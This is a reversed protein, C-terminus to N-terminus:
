GPASGAQAAYYIWFSAICWSHSGQSRVCEDADVVVEQAAAEMSGGRRRRPTVVGYRHAPANTRYKRCGQQAGGGRVVRRMRDDRRDEVRLVHGEELEPVRAERGRRISGHLEDHGAEVVFSHGGHPSEVCARPRELRGSPGVVDRRRPEGLDMRDQAEHALLGRARAPGDNIAIDVREPQLRRQRAEAADVGSQREAAVAHRRRRAEVPRAAEREASTKKHGPRRGLRRRPEVRPPEFAPAAPVRVLDGRVLQIVLADPDDRVRDDVPARPGRRREHPM